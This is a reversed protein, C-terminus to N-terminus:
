FDLFTNFQCCFFIVTLIYTHLSILLHTYVFIYIYTHIYGIKASVFHIKFLLDHKTDLNYFVHGFVDPHFM